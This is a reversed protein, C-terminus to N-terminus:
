FVWFKLLLYGIPATLAVSLTKAWFEGILSQCFYIILTAIIWTFLFQLLYKFVKTFKLPATKKFSWIQHLSFNLALALSASVFNSIFVGYIGVLSLFIVTDVLYTVLGVILWRFPSSSYIKALMFM